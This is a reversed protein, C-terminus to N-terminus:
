DRGEMGAKHELAEKGEKIEAPAPCPEPPPLKPGKRGHALAWMPGEPDLAWGGWFAESESERTELPEGALGAGFCNSKFYVASFSSKFEVAEYNASPDGM